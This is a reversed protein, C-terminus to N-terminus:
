NHDIELGFWSSYNVDNSILRSVPNRDQYVCGVAELTAWKKDNVDFSPYTLRHGSVVTSSHTGSLTTIIM